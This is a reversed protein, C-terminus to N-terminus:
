MVLGGGLMRAGAGFVAGVELLMLVLVRIM